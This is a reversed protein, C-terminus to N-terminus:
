VNQKPKIRYAFTNWNWSPEKVDDWRNMSRGTEQVKHGFKYLEMVTIMYDLTVNPKDESFQM